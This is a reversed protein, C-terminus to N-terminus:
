HRNTANAYFFFQQQDLGAGPMGQCHSLRCQLGELM